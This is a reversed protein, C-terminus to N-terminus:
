TNWVLIMVELWIYDKEAETKLDKQINWVLNLVMEFVGAVEGDRATPM